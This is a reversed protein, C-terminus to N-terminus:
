LAARLQEGTVEAFLLIRLLNRGLNQLLRNQIVHLKGLDVGVTEM